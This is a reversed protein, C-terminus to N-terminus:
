KESLLAELHLLIEKSLERLQEIGATKDQESSRLLKEANNHLRSHTEKLQQFEFNNRHKKSSSHSLWNGLYCHSSDLQPLKSNKNQLFAEMHNIWDNHEIAAHLVVHSQADIPKTVEWSAFGKWSEVWDMVNQAPMAKSIAYGQAIECGLRLLMKGHEESEVGEAVVHSDFAQALGISAEVISINQSITLLDIVFSKDIKLTNMPLKKLYHLSAYGTGFDDIAITVGLDQCASLTKSTLEFNELASTELIEIEVSNAKINPHKGLLEKLYLHFNEQQVEHSSVNISLTVYLGALHWAELQSFAQTFVWHGLEIMFSSDHEVLPLFSDPYALGNVPHNWRLLAEFGIVKNNTMNVKPQYYLAFEKKAIAGRLNIIDQQQSKLEQSAELDFFRYQNKGSLKAHYMAQDAQRLLAETGIDDMQPYFSVGVSASVRMGNDKYLINSSLDSLLRQLLPIVESSNKLESAVIVFEDGGLRAVIDSERVIENMRNAITILVADGADHGYTDNIAKFGDLDIFLLALRQRKRKVSHMAHTLLESLLFRNPLQTLSDHKATHNLKDQYEIQQSIDTNFGVFRLATGDTNFLAKGRGLIWRWSGDKARLRFTSEYSKKGKSNLYENVIKSAREKDDPHLLGFWADINQPLDGVDYGLMSEFRESLFLEDTKVDWDWLGDQAGEIALSFRNREKQLENQVTHLRTIDTMSSKSHLIKGKSDRVAIINLLVYLKSGDKRKLILEANNVVGNQLFHNFAKRVGDMSEAHYLEFIEKGIIEKKTYALSDVLTQNCEIVKATKADVSVHMEVTFDYFNKYQQQLEKEKKYFAYGLEELEDDSGLPEYKSQTNQSSMKSVKDYLALIPNTMTTALYYASLVGMALILLSFIALIVMLKQLPQLYINKLIGIELTIGLNYLITHMHDDLQKYRHYEQDPEYNKSYYEFNNQFFKTYIFNDSENYQEIIKGMGYTAVIAGQTTNYYQAPIIIVIENKQPKLYIVTQALSLALRLEQSDSFKPAEENTQFVVRGDFDLVSLSDLLKGNKFNNILPPLYKNRNEQDIFANVILENTALLETSEKLYELRLELDNALRDSKNKLDLDAKEQLNRLALSIFFSITITLIIAILVSAQFIVKTKISKKFGNNPYM